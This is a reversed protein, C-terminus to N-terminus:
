SKNRNQIPAASQQSNLLLRRLEGIASLYPTYAQDAALQAVRKGEAELEDIRKEIRERMTDDM